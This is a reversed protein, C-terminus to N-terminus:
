GSQRKKELRKIRADIIDRYQAPMSAKLYNLFHISAETGESSQLFKSALGVALPPADPRKIAESMLAYARADDHLFDHAIYGAMFPLEWDWSRAKAGRSLLEVATSAGQEHFATLGITLRYTDAFWPDLTQAALLRENLKKWLDTQNTQQQRITDYISFLALIDLDAASGAFPGALMKQAAPPMGGTLLTTQDAQQAPKCAISSGYLCLGTLLTM